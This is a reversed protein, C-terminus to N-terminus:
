NTGTGQWKYMPVLKQSAGDWNVNSCYKVWESHTFKGGAPATKNTCYNKIQPLIVALQAKVEIFRDQADTFKKFNSKIQANNQNIRDNQKLIVANVPDTNEKNWAVVYTNWWTIADQRDTEIRAKDTLCQNYQDMETERNFQRGCRGNYENVTAQIRQEVPGKVDREVNVIAQALRSKKEVQDAIYVKNEKELNVNIDTTASMVQNLSPLETSLSNFQDTLAGISQASVAGSALLAAVLVLKKM